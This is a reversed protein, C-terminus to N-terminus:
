ASRRTRRSGTRATSPKPAQGTPAQPRRSHSTRPERVGGEVHGPRLRGRQVRVRCRTSGAGPREPRGPYQVPEPRAEAAPAPEVLHRGGVGHRDSPLRPREGGHQRHGLHLGGRGPEPARHQPHPRRASRRDQRGGQRRRTVRPPPPERGLVANRALAVFAPMRNTQLTARREQKRQRYVHDPWQFSEDGLRGLRFRRDDQM